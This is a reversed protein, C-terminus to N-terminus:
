AYSHPETRTCVGSSICRLHCKTDQFLNWPNDLAELLLLAAQTLRVQPATDADSIPVDEEQGEDVAVGETSLEFDPDDAPELRCLMGGSTDTTSAKQVPAKPSRWHAWCSIAKHRAKCSDDVPSMRHCSWRHVSLRKLDVAGRKIRQAVTCCFFLM